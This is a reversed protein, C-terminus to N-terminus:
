RRPQYVALGNAAFAIQCAGLERVSFNTQNGHCCISTAQRLLSCFEVDLIPIIRDIAGSKLEPRPISTGLKAEFEIRLQELWERLRWHQFVTTAIITRSPVNIEQASAPDEGLWAGIRIGPTIIHM